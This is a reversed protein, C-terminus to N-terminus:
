PHRKAMDLLIIAVMVAVMGLGLGAWARGRRFFLGIVSVLLGFAGALLWGAAVLILLVMRDWGDGAGYRPPLLAVSRACLLLLVAISGALFGMTGLGVEWLGHRRGARPEAPANPLLTM